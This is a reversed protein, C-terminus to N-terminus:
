NFGHCRSRIDRQDVDGGRAFVGLELHGFLKDIRRNLMAKDVNPICAGINWCISYIASKTQYEAPRSRTRNRYMCALYHSDYPLFINSAGRSSFSFHVM